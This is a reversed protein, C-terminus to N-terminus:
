SKLLHWIEARGITSVLVYKKDILKTLEPYEPSDPLIVVLTPPKQTLEEAVKATSSFDSIHYDAVYKIPPLRRSLAYIVPADNGWVFVKADNATSTMIFSSIKYNNDTQSNFTNFFDTKSTKGTAFSVFKAYYSFTPYYYFKYYVPVFVSLALPFIVLLQEITKGGLLMGILISISPIAQILYHPYPRESLTVAFLSTLLWLCTFIFTKSLKKQFLFLIIAGILVIVGRILITLHKAIFSGGSGGSWSSVYGLNQLFAISIYDSLAGKTWFYVATLAIPIVLGLLLAFSQSIIETIKKGSRISILWFLVIAGIDFVAPFKFLTAISFLIGALFTKKLSPNGLLITFAIIIPGILFLEANVINGEFLPITTLISFAITAIIEARKNGNFLMKTLKWFAIITVIMWLTLIAKFWFLNGALAATLYLLPPKNDHISQYITIGRRIANGLALYIMEDGYNYPEFFSPIRLVVVAALVAMLWKPPEIKALFQDIKRLSNM